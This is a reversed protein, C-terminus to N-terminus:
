TDWMSSRCKNGFFQGTAKFDQPKLLGLQIADFNIQNVQRPISVYCDLHIAIRDSAETRLHDALEHVAKQGNRLSIWGTM